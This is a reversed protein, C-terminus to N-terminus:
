GTVAIRDGFCAGELTMFNTARIVTISNLITAVALTRPKVFSALTM